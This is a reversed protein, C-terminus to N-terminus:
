HQLYGEEMLLQRSSDGASFLKINGVNPWYVNELYTGPQVLVTDGTSCAVLGSQITAYSSPVNHITAYSYPSLSLLLILFLTYKM